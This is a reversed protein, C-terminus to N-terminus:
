GSSLMPLTVGAQPLVCVSGQWRSEPLKQLAEQVADEVTAFKPVKMTQGDGADLGGSVLMLNVRDKLLGLKVAEAKLIGDELQGDRIEEQLSAFSQGIYGPFRPYNSNGETAATLVILTGRDAVVLSGCFIGKTSQWFDVDYPYSNAVVVEYRREVPVGFSDQAYAVGQRHAQVPHGAVCQVIEGKINLIVNVIFSLPIRDEVFSELNLRLPSDINGLQTEGLFAGAAHFADVTQKNCVGPLIIKAGGSFGADSHPTIMGIGIRLDADAVHRNVWAPIGNSSTGLFLMEGQEKCPTNIVEYRSVIGAGLKVRLEAETMPRHTGLAAVIQIHEDEVGQEELLGLILPLIRAVPTKRTYDDVVIAVRQGPTVLETIPPTGIPHQVAERILLDVDSAGPLPRPEVVPGLLEDAISVPLSGKGYPLSLQAM